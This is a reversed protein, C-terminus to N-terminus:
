GYMLHWFVNHVIIAKQDTSCVYYECLASNILVCKVRFSKKDKWYILEWPVPIICYSGFLRREIVSYKSISVNNWSKWFNQLMRKLIELFDHLFIEGMCLVNHTTVSLNEFQPLNCHDNDCCRATHTAPHSYITDYSRWIRRRQDGHKNGCSHDRMVRDRTLGCLVRQHLVPYGLCLSFRYM